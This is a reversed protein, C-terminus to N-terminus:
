RSLHRYADPTITASIPHRTDPTPPRLFIDALTYRSSGFHRAASQHIACIAERDAEEAPRLSM